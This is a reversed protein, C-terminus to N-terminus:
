TGSKSGKLESQIHARVLGRRHAPYDHGHLRERDGCHNHRLSATSVNYRLGADRLRLGGFTLPLSKSERLPASSASLILKRRLAGNFNDRLAALACLPPHQSRVEKKADKRSVSFPAGAGTMIEAVEAGRRSGFIGATRCAWDQGIGQAKEFFSLIM